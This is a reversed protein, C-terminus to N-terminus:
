LNFDAYPVMVYEAQGGIWGGMDVYIRLSRRCSRWKCKFLYRDFRKVIKVAAVPLMLLFLFLIEKKIFEVNERIRYDGTIEHGLVLGKEATTRGRVM